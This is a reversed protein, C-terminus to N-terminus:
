IPTGDPDTIDSLWNIVDEFSTFIELRFPYDTIRLCALLQRAGSLNQLDNRVIIAMKGTFLSKHKALELAWELHDGITEHDVCDRLDVLIDCDKHFSAAVALERVIERSRELDVDGNETLRILDSHRYIRLTSAM